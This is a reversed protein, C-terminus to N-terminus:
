PKIAKIMRDKGMIDQKLELSVYEFDTLLQMVSDSLSENIELYLRGKSKLNHTGFQAIHKYFLLPNEDEVFLALHPEYNLVNPAMLEKEHLRVYPPNSVIIDFLPEEDELQIYSRKLINYIVFEVDVHNLIANEAAMSMAEDSIDFGYVEADGFHKALSIAICGSGTGIDLLKKPHSAKHDQIIWDVLEETEPRPILVNTDVKFTLGYFETEGLIYQIPEYTKLRQIANHFADYQTTDITQQPDLSIDIRKLGLHYESLLFFFSLIEDEPFYGLLEDKFYNKLDKIQM